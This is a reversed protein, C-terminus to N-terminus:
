VCKKANISRHVLALRLVNKTLFLFIHSLKELIIVSQLLRGASGDM